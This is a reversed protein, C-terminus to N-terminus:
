LVKKVDFGIKREAEAAQVAGSSGLVVVTGSEAVRRAVDAFAKFDEVTTGLLETRYQQRAEDSYDILYRAMAGFGKADPLQYADINGIAGIISKVLEEQSLDLDELFTPTQDYIDLTQVLNPDRYSLYGFTGSQPDFVCFGGYAGGQVRVREWLWTSRLYHSIVETSGHRQYGLDFLSAGKGVYNVNAPITLAEPQTNYGPSWAVVEAGAAPDEPLRALFDALRPQVATWNEADLTVNCLMAGRRVLIRRITELKELVGPWDSTVEEALKRLFFLYDVGGIQEGVWHAESFKARLRSAVVRHGAPILSSEERAKRELVMQQFRPQNDLRATLLIDHLIALLEHSQEVTAKGRLFAWAATGDTPHMTSTFTTPSIGGTERGIRQTLKVFDETETGLELLGSMFLGTYPLLEQPLLHLNLGLDLYVIGNTFLDHYLIDTDHHSLSETPVHKPEPDLDELGLSPITALAEPPDPTEQLKKLQQVHLALARLEEDSMARKAAALRAKEAAAQQDQLDADPELIVTALHPNELLHEAILAEFARSDSGVRTKIEELPQEFAIPAFPDGDHLWTTLAQIMVFLGRPYRGTNQERLQFEFTNISAAVMDPDLGTEVLERLTSMILAAVEDVKSPDVGKMGVSFYLQRLSDDLGGGIVDEGLGSDILAKRLPSAPTGILIHSLIGLALTRTPDNNEPLLWNLTIMSKPDDDGEDVPYGEVIRRPESLAPQLEIRSDAELSELARAIKEELYENVIRLRTDPDDDGYFFIRANSPHYYIEHFRKFQTYTLDPIIAPDGGSDLGYVNDPFVSQESYRGILNDPSAYAGKMENFVVGKYVLPADLGGSADENLEYHWGEQELIELTLRPFFVADLYVDILNYFDQLNQSAVPYCTKDSFTMANLFTNLSGKVLEVFPEKVPYKRSGCLVSHEMIHPIGTSDPPPTRFTIGFVKNEDENELSLLEAGTKEHRYLKGRTNLEPIERTEVLTFGHETTM